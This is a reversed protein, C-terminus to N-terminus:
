AEELLLEGKDQKEKLWQPFPTHIGDFWLQDQESVWKEFIRLVDEVTFLPQAEVTITQWDSM